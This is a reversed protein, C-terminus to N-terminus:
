PEEGKLAEALARREKIEDYAIFAPMIVWLLIMVWFLISDWNM